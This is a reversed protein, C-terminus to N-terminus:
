PNPKLVKTLLERVARRADLAATEDYGVTVGYEVCPDSWTFVQGTKLNIIKGPETEALQCHRLTQAKALSVPRPNWNDATGQFVRVPRDSVQDEDLYSTNCQPYFPIFAAFELNPAGWMRQFRKMTAYLAAQGGRSFGM